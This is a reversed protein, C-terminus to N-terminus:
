VFKKWLWCLFHWEFFSPLNLSLTAKTQWLHTSKLQYSKNTIVLILKWGNLCLRNQCKILKQSVLFWFPVLAPQHPPPSRPLTFQKVAFTEITPTWVQDLVTFLWDSCHTISTAFHSMKHSIVQLFVLLPSGICWCNGRWDLSPVHCIAALLLLVLPLCPLLLGQWYQATCCHQDVRIKRIIALACVTYFCNISLFNHAASNACHYQLYM